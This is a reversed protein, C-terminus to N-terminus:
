FGLRPWRFLTLAVLIAINILIAFLGKETLAQVQGDWFLIFIVASCVAAAIVVPRWWAQAAFLAIGAVVFGVAVLVCTGSAIIRTAENGFLGSFAWSGDPWGMGPRLEFFRAAHGFYLLHVLGHLILFIGTLINM